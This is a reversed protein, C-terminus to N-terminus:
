DLEKHMVWTEQTINQLKGDVMQPKLYSSEGVIKYGLKEYLKGARINSKDFGNQSIKLGKERLINEMERIMTTGIGQGRFVHLVEFSSIEGINKDALKTWDLWIYAIPFDNIVAVYIDLKGDLKQQWKAKYYDSKLDVMSWSLSDLDYITATRITYETQLNLELTSIIEPM